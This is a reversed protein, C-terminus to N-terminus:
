INQGEKFEKYGKLQARLYQLFVRTYFLDYIDQCEERIMCKVAVYDHIWLFHDILDRYDRGHMGERSFRAAYRHTIRQITEELSM